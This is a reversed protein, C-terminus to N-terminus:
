MVVAPVCSVCVCPGRIWVVAPSVDSDPRTHEYSYSYDLLHSSLLDDTHVTCTLTHLQRTIVPGHMHTPKHMFSHAYIHLCIDAPSAYKHGRAHTHEQTHM